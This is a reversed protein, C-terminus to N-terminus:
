KAEQQLTLLGLRVRASLMELQQDVNYRGQKTRTQNALNARIHAIGKIAFELEQITNQIDYM